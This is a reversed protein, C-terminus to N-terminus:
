LIEIVRHLRRTWGQLVLLLWPWADSITHKGELAQQKCQQQCCTQLAKKMADHISGQCYNEGNTGPATALTMFKLMLSYDYNCLAALAAVTAEGMSVADHLPMTASLRAPSRGTLRRPCMAYDIVLLLEMNGYSRDTSTLADEAAPPMSLLQCLMMQGHCTDHLGYKRGQAAVERM